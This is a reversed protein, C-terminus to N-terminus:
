DGVKDIILFQQGGQARLLVIKDGSKLGNHITALKTVGDITIDTEYDTVNRGRILFDSDLQFRQDVNVKLPKASTVTGYMIAVPNGEENANVSIQKLADYLSM